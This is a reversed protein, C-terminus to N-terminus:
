KGEIALLMEERNNFRAIEDDSDSFPSPSVEFRASGIMFRGKPTTAWLISYGNLYAHRLDKPFLYHKDWRM